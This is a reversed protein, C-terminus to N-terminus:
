FVYVLIGAVGSLAIAVIPNLGGKQIALFVLAALLLSFLHPGAALGGPFFAGRGISIVATAILGVTAPHIGKLVGKAAPSDKVNNFFAAIAAIILMSPMIVGLTAFVAGPIGAAKMGTFTAMNVAFPGPTMESIAIMDIVENITVWGKETLIGQMMPIMAYGGGFTTGGIKFFTFFLDLLLRIATSM